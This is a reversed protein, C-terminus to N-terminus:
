PKKTTDVATHGAAAKERAHPKVVPKPAIPTEVNEEMHKDAPPPIDGMALATGEVAAKEPGKEGADGSVIPAGAGTAPEEEGGTAGTTNISQETEEAAGAAWAGAEEDQSPPSTSPQSPEKYEKLKISYDYRDRDGAVNIVKFGYIIVKTVDATGSVDSNFLVPEGQKFKSRLMEIINRASPGMVIGDFSLRVATRGLDQVASGEMGPVTHLVINRNDTAHVNSVSRAEAIGGEQSLIENLSIGD